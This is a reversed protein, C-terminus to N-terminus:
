CLPKRLKSLGKLFTGSYDNKTTAECIFADATDVHNYLKHCHQMIFAIKM